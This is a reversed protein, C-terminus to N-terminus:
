QYGKEKPNQKLDILKTENVWVVFSVVTNFPVLGFPFDIGKVICITVINQAGHNKYLILNRHNAM